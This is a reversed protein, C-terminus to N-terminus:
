LVRPSVTRITLRLGYDMDNVMTQLEELSYKKEHVVIVSNAHTRSFLFLSCRKIVLSLPKGRKEDLGYTFGDRRKKIVRSYGIM